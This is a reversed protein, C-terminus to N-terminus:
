GSRRWSVHGDEDVLDNETSTRPAPLSIVFSSGVGKAEALRLSGGDQAVLRQALHLGIGEGPSDDGHEGWEFIRQREQEPIGRGFDTVTIDVTEEDRRVVEVVSSDTGGHTAANDMLINVVEALSDYRAQVTDGTTHLEVQRGKLRQLELILVLAEDLDVPTAPRSEDSLLRQMRGLERRVSEWLRLRAELSIDAHDLLESGNVLGAVTSRLEHMRERQDRITAQQAETIEADRRAAARDVGRNLCQWAAALWAAGVAALALSVLTDWATDRGLGVVVGLATLVVATLVVLPTMLGVLVRQSVVIAAAAVQTLVLLGILLQMPVSAAAGQPILLLLHGAALLGMGLGVAFVDDAVARAGPLATLAGMVSALGVLGIVLLAVLELTARPPPNAIAPLTVLLAQAAILAGVGVVWGEHARAHRRCGMVAALVAGAVFVCSVVAAVLTRAEADTSSVPPVGGWSTWALM